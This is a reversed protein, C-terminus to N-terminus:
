TAPPQALQVNLSGATINQDGVSIVVSVRGVQSISFPSMTFTLIFGAYPKKDIRAMELTKRVLDGDVENKSAEAGDPMVVRAVIPGPAYDPRVHLRAYVSVKPLAGPLKPVKLNDPYVGVITVTGATEPRIDDCFIAVASVDMM